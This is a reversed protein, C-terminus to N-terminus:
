RTRPPVTILACAVKISAEPTRSLSIATVTPTVSCGRLENVVEHLGAVQCLCAVSAAVGVLDVVLEREAVRCRCWV